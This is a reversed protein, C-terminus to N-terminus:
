DRYRASIADYTFVGALIAALLVWKGYSWISNWNVSAMRKYPTTGCKLSMTNVTPQQQQNEPSVQLDAPSTGSEITIVEKPALRKGALESAIMRIMMRDLREIQYEPVHPKAHPNGVGSHDTLFLYQGLTLFSGARMIFEAKLAVGSAGIPFIRVGKGRLDKSAELAREAHRDHPPADGVLFLVRATDKDRWNLKTAHEMALHMAEPYDGGGSAFQESLTGRFEELSDTFDFTRTVYEDGEDRYVILSYHQDVDPFMRNVTAAISDIEVKLYELEDSMSGTTDVVLALDLQKPLQAEADPLTVSWVDEGINFTHTVNEASDPSRVTVAFDRSGGGDIGTLFMVRGDSGTTLDLLKSNTNGNENGSAQVTVRADGVPRGDDNTVQIMVREGLAFRPFTENADKQLTESLFDRYDDFRENDDFSGATLIGSQIERQRKEKMRSSETTSIPDTSDESPTPTKAAPPPVAGTPEPASESKAAPRTSPASAGESGEGEFYEHSASSDDADGAMALSDAPTADSSERRIVKANQSPGESSSTSSVSESSGCGILVSCVVLLGSVYFARSM